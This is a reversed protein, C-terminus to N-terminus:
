FYGAIGAAIGFTTFKMDIEQTETASGADLERSGSLGLDLFPGGIIAFHEMPSIVVNGELTLQLSNASIDVEGDGTDGSATAFAVGARPWIAFTDDIAYAYGVRPNIYFTTLSGDDTSDGGSIETETSETTLWLAGGVSLGDTVLYDFGLRPTGSPSDGGDSGLLGIRTTSTDSEADTDPNELHTKDFFLGTIREAGIVFQGQNGINEVEQAAVPNALM